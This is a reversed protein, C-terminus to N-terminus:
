TRKGHRTQKQWLSAYRGGLQLLQKHTGREAITGKEMVIIEDLNAVTSLRHAIVIATHNGIIEPLAAQIIKESESDLASTAEDFVMIPANKLIARAIVVRQKQGGSLKVGREGVITDYGDPLQAIFEHAYAAKAAHIISKDKTDDNFYAINERISRHFLLPEQPVYAINRRLESQRVKRIDTGDIKISGEQIDDFRMLLSAFTSKGAGSLGVIGVHSGGNIHLSLNQFVQIDKGTKRSPYGFSVNELDITGKTIRLRKPRAPDTITEYSQRIYQLTPHVKAILDDHAAILKPLSGVNRMILFMYSLTLVVLGVTEASADARSIVILFTITVGVATIIDRPLDLIAALRRRQWFTAVEEKALAQMRRSAQREVGASKFAVINTVADAAEGTVKRYIEHSKIRHANTRASAWIIYVIQVAIIAITTAGLRWDVVFLVAAPMFLLVLMNLIDDRLMRTLLMMGDLYQRFLSVLYGTQHDRYFAMDKSTIKAYFRQMLDGYVKNETHIALMDGAVGIVVGCVHVIFFYIIYQKAGEIDGAALHTAAQATLAIAVIRVAVSRVLEAAISLWLKPQKGYTQLLHTYVEKNM